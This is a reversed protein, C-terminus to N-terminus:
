QLIKIREKIIKLMDEGCQQTACESLAAQYNKKAMAPEKLNDYALALNFHAFASDPLLTLVKESYDKAKDMNGMNIYCNSANLYASTNNPDAEIAKEFMSLATKFDAKQLYDMGETNYELSKKLFEQTTQEKGQTFAMDFVCMLGSVALGVILIGGLWKRPGKIEIM